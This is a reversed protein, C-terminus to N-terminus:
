LSLSWLSHAVLEKAIKRTGDSGEALLAVIDKARMAQARQNDRTNINGNVVDHLFKATQAGTEAVMGSIGCFTWKLDLSTKFATGTVFM